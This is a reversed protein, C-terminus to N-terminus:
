PAGGGTSQARSSITRMKAGGGPLSALKGPDAGRPRRGIGTLYPVNPPSTAIIAELGCDRMLQGARMEDLFASVIRIGLARRQSSPPHPGYDTTAAVTIM